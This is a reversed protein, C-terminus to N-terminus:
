LPEKKTFDFKREFMQVNKPFEFAVEKVEAEFELVDGKEMCGVNKFSQTINVTGKRAIPINSLFDADEESYGDEILRTKITCLTTPWYFFSGIEMIEAWADPCDSWSEISCAPRVLCTKCCNPKPEPPKVILKKKM